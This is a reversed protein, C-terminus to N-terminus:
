VSKITHAKALTVKMVQNQWTGLRRMDILTVEGKLAGSSTGPIDIRSQWLSCQKLLPVNRM